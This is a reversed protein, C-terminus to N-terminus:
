KIYKNIIRDRAGTALVEELSKQIKALLKASTNKNAIMYYGGEESLLYAIELESYKYGQSNMQYALDLPDGPILDVRQKFLMKLLQESDSVLYYNHDHFDNTKFFQEVSGGSLVGTYYKKIDEIEDIQVDTRSKLKYLYVRRPHIPGIWAFMDERQPVRAVTFLMTNPTRQVTILARKFPYVALKYPIKAKQLAAEILETSIGVIKDNKEFNYPPWNDVFITLKRAQANVVIGLLLIIILIKFSKIKWHCSM